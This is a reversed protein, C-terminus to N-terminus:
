INDKFRVPLDYYMISHRASCRPCEWIYKLPADEQRKLDNSKIQFERTCENCKVQMHAIIYINQM